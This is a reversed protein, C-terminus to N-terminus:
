QQMDIRVNWLIDCVRSYIDSEAIYAKPGEARCNLCQNAKFFHGNPEKGMVEGSSIDDSGCFPCPLLKNM